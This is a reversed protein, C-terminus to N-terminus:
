FAPEESCPEPESGKVPLHHGVFQNNSRQHFIVKELRLSIALQRWSAM